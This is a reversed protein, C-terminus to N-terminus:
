RTTCNTFGGVTNCTTQVPRNVANIMQQQASWQLLAAAAAQRQALEAQNSANLSAILERDATALQQHADSSLAQLQRAWEGWTIRREVLQVAIADGKTYDAILIPVIDPRAASLATLFRARCLGLDDHRTGFLRAEDSSIRTEDTLQAMTFQAAALDVSHALLQTYEPKALVAATCAKAQAGAERTAAGIQQAQRQATTACADVFLVALLPLLTGMRRCPKLMM